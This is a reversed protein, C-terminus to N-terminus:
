NTAALSGCIAPAVYPLHLFDFYNQGLAIDRFATDDVSRLIDSTLDLEHRYDEFTRIHRAIFDTGPLFRTPNRNILSVYRLRADPHSFYADQLVSWSLDLALNPHQDLLRAMLATHEVPDAKTLERSLGMHMWVIRNQPYLRLVEELLALNKTPSADDGLDLHLSLPINRQRLIEMFPAWHAIAQLPVTVHGNPILAQKFVNVEGMWRFMGPYERDLLAIGAPIAEPNALDPFTMSLTLVVGQPPNDVVDEANAFDNKFTPLAPTGPCDLYYECGSKPPLTQGIGYMNAFVVGARKLDLVMDTFPIPAGGFSRFHLHSDVVATDHATRVHCANSGPRFRALPDPELASPKKTDVAMSTCGALVAACLMVVAARGLQSQTL